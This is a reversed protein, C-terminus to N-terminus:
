AASGREALLATAGNHFHTLVVAAACFMGLRKDESNWPKRPKPLRLALAPYFRAIAEAVEERTRAGVVAFAEQVKERPYSAIYLGRDAAVALLDVSLASVRASRRTRDTCAEIVFESPKFLAILKETKRRCNANKNGRISTFVGSAVFGFPGECVVWGFGRSTLHLGLTRYRGHGVANM